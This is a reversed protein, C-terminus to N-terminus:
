TVCGLVSFDDISYGRFMLLHFTGMGVPWMVLPPDLVAAFGLNSCKTIITLSKCGNVIIAFREMKSTAATRSGGRDTINQDIFLTKDCSKSFSKPLNSPFFALIIICKNKLNM